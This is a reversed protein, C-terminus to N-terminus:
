VYSNIINDYASVIKHITIPNSIVKKLKTQLEEKTDNLAKFLLLKSDLDISHESKEINLYESIRDVLSEYLAKHTDKNSIYFEGEELIRYISTRHRSILRGIMLLIDRKSLSFNAELTDRVAVALISKFIVVGEKRSRSKASRYEHPALISRAMGEMNILIDTM